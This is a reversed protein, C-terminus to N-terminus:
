CGVGEQVTETDTCTVSHASGSALTSATAPVAALGGATQLGDLEKKCEQLEFCTISLRETLEIQKSQLDNLEHTQHFVIFGLCVLAILLMISPPWEIGLKNAVLVIIDPMLALVIAIIGALMWMGTQLENLKHKSLGDGAIYILCLGVVAAFIQVIPSM